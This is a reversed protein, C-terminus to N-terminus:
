ELEEEQFSEVEPADTNEPVDVCTDQGAVEEPLADATEVVEALTAGASKQEPEPESSSSPSQGVQDFGSSDVSESKRSARGALAKVFIADLAKYIEDRRTELTADIEGFGTELYCGGQSISPDETLEVQAVGELLQPKELTAQQIRELDDKNLNIKVKSNQVVYSMATKLCTEIVLPNVTVEHYLVRDVMLKVLTLIDLEYEDHLRKRDEDFSQTLQTFQSLREQQKKQEEALAQEKGANFGKDFAEKEIQEVQDQAKKLMEATEREVREQDEKLQDVADIYETDASQWLSDLSLFTEDEPDGSGPKTTYIESKRLVNKDLKYIKSLSM